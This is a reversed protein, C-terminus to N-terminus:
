YVIGRRILEKIVSQDVGLRNLRSIYILNMLNVAVIADETTVSMYNGHTVRNRYRIIREIGSEFKAISQDFQKGQIVIEMYKDFLAKVKDAAAFDWHSISGNIMDYTKDPLPNEGKKHADVIKKVDRILAQFDANEPATLKQLMAECELATCITRIKESSIWGADNDDEPLFDLSFHPKNEREEFSAKFLAGLSKKVSAIPICQIWKKEMASKFSDRAFLTAVSSHYTDVDYQEEVLLEVEDFRVNKRFTLFQCMRLVGNYLPVIENMGIGDATTVEFVVRDNLLANGSVSHHERLSSFISITYSKGGIEVEQSILDSKTKIQFGDEATMDIDMGDPMFLLGLVGGTFRLGSLKQGAVDNGYIVIDTDFHAVGRHARFARSMYMYIHKGGLDIGELFNEKPAIETTGDNEKIFDFHFTDSQAWRIENAQNVLKGYNM